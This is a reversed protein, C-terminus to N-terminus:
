FGEVQRLKLQTQSLRSIEMPFLSCVQYAAVAKAAMLVGGEEEFVCATDLPLSLQKPYRRNVQM